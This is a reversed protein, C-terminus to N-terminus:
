TTQAIKCDFNILKGQLLRRNYFMGTGATDEAFTHLSDNTSNIM